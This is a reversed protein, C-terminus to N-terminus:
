EGDSGGEGGPLTKHLYSFTGDESFHQEPNNKRPWDKDSFKKFFELRILRLFIQSFTQAFWIMISLTCTPTPTISSPLVPGEWFFKWFIIKKIYCLGFFPSSIKIFGHAWLDYNQFFYIEPVGMVRIKLTEDKFWVKFFDSESPVSRFLSM